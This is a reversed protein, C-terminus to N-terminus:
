PSSIKDAFWFWYGCLVCLFVARIFVFAFGFDFGFGFGTKGCLVRLFVSSFQPLALLFLLLVLTLVLFPKVV